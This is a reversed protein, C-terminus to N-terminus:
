DKIDLTFMFPDRFHLRFTFILRHCFLIFMSLPLFFTLCRLSVCVVIGHTVIVVQTTLAPYLGRLSRICRRLSLDFRVERKMNM